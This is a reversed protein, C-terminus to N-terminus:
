KVLHVVRSEVRGGADLRMVYVGTGLSAGADDLGDWV